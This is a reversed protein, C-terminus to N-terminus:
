FPHELNAPNSDHLRHLLDFLIDELIPGGECRGQRVQELLLILCLADAQRTSTHGSWNYGSIKQDVGKVTYIMKGDLSYITEITLGTVLSDRPPLGGAEITATIDAPNSNSGIPSSM